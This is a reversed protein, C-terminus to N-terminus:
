LCDGNSPPIFYQMSRFSWRHKQYHHCLRYYDSFSGMVLRDTESFLTLLFDFYRM